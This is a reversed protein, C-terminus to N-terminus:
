VQPISYDKGLLEISLKKITGDARMKKMTADIKDALAQGKSNKKLAFFTPDSAIVPGVAKIDVGLVKKADNISVEYAPTADARGTIVLNVCETFGKDTFVFEIKPNATENYKQLQRTVESSATVAVKKGRLDDISKINKEDSRVALRRNTYNNIEKTWISKEARKKNFTIQNAILDVQDSELGLFGASVSMTKFKFKLDPNRKEIERLLEIDYGTLKGKDDVYTFPRFTGRTAVIYTTKKIKTNKDATKNNGGCGAMLVVASMITAALIIKRLKSSNFKMM